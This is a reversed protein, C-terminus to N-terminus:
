EGRRRLLARQYLEVYTGASKEWSFDQGMAAKQMAQYHQPRDYWTSVAWGICFYLATPNADRYKFGTGTGAAEDYQEVSDDLGGTARVIPLTGYKLSYLQNLGCPEFMSPMAFFDSGAEIRHSLAEDFGIWTGIRGPYRRPLDRYFAELGKDGSGLLVFQVAM